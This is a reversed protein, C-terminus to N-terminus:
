LNCVIRVQAENESGTVGLQFALGRRGECM